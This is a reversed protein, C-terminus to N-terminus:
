HQSALSRRIQKVEACFERARSDQALAKALDELRWLGFSTEHERVAELSRRGYSIGGVSDGLRVLAIGVEAVNEVITGFRGPQTVAHVGGGQAEHFM